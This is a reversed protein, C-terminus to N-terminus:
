INPAKKKVMPVSALCGRHIKKREKKSVLM